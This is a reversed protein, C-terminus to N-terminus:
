EVELRKNWECVKMTVTEPNTISTDKYVALAIQRATTITDEPNDQVIRATYEFERQEDEMVFWKIIPSLIAVALLGNYHAPALNNTALAYAIPSVLLRAISDLKWMDAERTPEDTEGLVVWKGSELGMVVGVAGNDVLVRVPLSAAMGDLPYEGFRVAAAAWEFALRWAAVSVCEKPEVPLGEVTLGLCKECVYRCHNQEDLWVAMDGKTKCLVCKM